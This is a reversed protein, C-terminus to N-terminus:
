AKAGSLLRHASRLAALEEDSLAESDKFKKNSLVYDMLEKREDAMNATRALIQAIDTLSSFKGVDTAWTDAITSYRMLMTIGQVSMLFKKLEEKRALREPDREAADLYPGYQDMIEHGRAVLNSIIYLDRQLEASKDPMLATYGSIDIRKAKIEAHLLDVAELVLEDKMRTIIDDCLM